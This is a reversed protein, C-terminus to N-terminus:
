PEVDLDMIGDIVDDVSKYQVSFFERQIGDNVNSGPPSFLDLILRWKGPQHKKPIVGFRSTHLNTLPSTPFTGAIRAKGMEALLYNDIVEPQLLASSMNQSASRLSVAAPNFGLRFGHCPGTLVYDAVSRDLHGLLELELKGTNIPTIMSPPRFPSFPGAFSPSVSQNPRVRAPLLSHITPPIESPPNPESSM